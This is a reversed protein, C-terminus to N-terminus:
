QGYDTGLNGSLEGVHLLANRAADVVARDVDFCQEQGLGFLDPVVERVELTLRENLAFPKGQVLVLAPPGVLGGM